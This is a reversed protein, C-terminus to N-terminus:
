MPRWESKGRKESQKRRGRKGKGGEGKKQIRQTVITRAALFILSLLM